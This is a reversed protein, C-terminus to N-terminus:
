SAWNQVAQQIQNQREESLMIVKPKEESIGLKEEMENVYELWVRVDSGRGERMIREYLANLVNPTKELVWNDAEKAVREHFDDRAMWNSLTSPSVELKGALAKQTAPERAASPQATWKIFAIYEVEKVSNFSQNKDKNKTM